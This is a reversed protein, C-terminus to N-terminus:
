SFYEQLFGLDLGPYVPFRKLLAAVRKQAEAKAQPEITYKAKSPKGANTGKTLIKPSTNSLVLKFVGAIEKMEDIGMGLSTVAPTGVRLGSTYWPGNEDFPLANRNLTIGCERVANEAQRGNLGFPTVDLLM